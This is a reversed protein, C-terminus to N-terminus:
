TRLEFEDMDGKGAKLKLILFVLGVLILVSGAVVGAIIVGIRAAMLSGVGAKWEDAQEDTLTNTRTIYYVPYYTNRTTHRSWRDFVFTNPNSKNWSAGFTAVAVQLPARASFALGTIPEIDWFLTYEEENTELDGDLPDVFVDREKVLTFHPFTLFIDVQGKTYARKCNMVFNFPNDYELPGSFAVKSYTEDAVYRNVPIGKLTRTKSFILKLERVVNPVWLL